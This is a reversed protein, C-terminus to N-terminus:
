GRVVTLSYARLEFTTSSDVKLRQHVPPRDRVVRFDAGLQYENRGYQYLDIEGRLFGVKLNERGPDECEFEIKVERANDPDRNILLVAWLRDPRLTAYATILPDDTTAQYLEHLGGGPKTWEHTLLV